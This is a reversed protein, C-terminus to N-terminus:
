LRYRKLCNGLLSLASMYLHRHCECQKVRLAMKAGICDPDLFPSSTFPVAAHVEPPIRVSIEEAVQIHDRSKESGSPCPLASLVRHQRKRQRRHQEQGHLKRFHEKTIHSRAERLRQAKGKQPNSGSIVIFVNDAIPETMFTPSAILLLM